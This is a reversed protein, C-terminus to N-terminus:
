DISGTRIQLDTKRECRVKPETLYVVDDWLCINTSELDGVLADFM